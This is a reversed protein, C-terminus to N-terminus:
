HVVLGILDERLDGTVSAEVPGVRDSVAELLLDGRDPWHRYITSRAVGSRQAIADITAGSFGREAVVEVAAGLVVRRTREIRPDTATDLETLTM